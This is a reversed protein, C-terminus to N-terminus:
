PTRKKKAQHAWTKEIYAGADRTKCGTEGHDVEVKGIRKAAALAKRKLAPNRCGICIVAHNMTYREDNFGGAITAEITALSTEFYANPLDNTARALGALVIWGMSRTSERKTKLWAAARNQAHPTAIVLEALASALIGYRLDKAWTNIQKLTTANPDAVKMALVRADHVESEWLAVALAHDIKIRKKLKGLEAYSVGYMPGLVGHRAYIKQNQATGAKELAHLTEKLTM